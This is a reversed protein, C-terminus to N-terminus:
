GPWWGPRPSGPWHRLRLSGSWRLVATALGVTMVWRPGHRDTWRGVLIGALGSVVLAASFAAALAPPSWGTGSAIRGSLVPFAYYLVGWSTVEAVSLVALVGGFGAKEM